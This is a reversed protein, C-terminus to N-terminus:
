LLEDVAKIFYSIFMSSKLCISSSFVVSVVGNYCFVSYQPLYM